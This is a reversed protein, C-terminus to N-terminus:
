SAVCANESKLMNNIWFSYDQKADRLNEELDGSQEIGPYISM